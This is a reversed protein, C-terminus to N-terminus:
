LSILGSRVILWCLGVTIWVVEAWERAPEKVIWRMAIWVLVYLVLFLM